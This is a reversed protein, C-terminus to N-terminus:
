ITCSICTRITNYYYMHYKYMVGVQFCTLILASWVFVGSIAVAYVSHIFQAALGESMTVNETTGNQLSVTEASTPVEESGLVDEMAGRCHM